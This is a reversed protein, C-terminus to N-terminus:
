SSVVSDCVIMHASDGALCQRDFIALAFSLITEPLNNVFAMKKDRVIFM